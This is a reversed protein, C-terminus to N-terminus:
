ESEYNATFSSDAEILLYKSENLQAFTLSLVVRSWGVKTPEDVADVSRSAVKEIQRKGQETKRAM